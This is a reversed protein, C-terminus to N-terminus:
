HRARLRGQCGWAWDVDVRNFGRQMLLVGLDRGRTRCTAEDDHHFEMTVTEIRDWEDATMAEFLPYEHGEIDVKLVDWLPERALVDHISVARVEIGEDSVAPLGTNIAGDPMAEFGSMRVTGAEVTVAAETAIITGPWPEVNAALLDFTDPTPEFTYVCRAGAVAAFVAFGGIGGGLDLVTAGHPVDWGDCTYYRDGWIERIMEIDHTNVRATFEVEDGDPTVYALTTTPMTM